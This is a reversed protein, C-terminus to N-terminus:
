PLVRRLALLVVGAALAEGALAALDVADPLLSADADAPLLDIGLAAIAVLLAGAAPLLWPRRHAPVPATADGYAPVRRVREMIAATLRPDVPADADRPPTDINM